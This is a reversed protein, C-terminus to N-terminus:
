TFRSHSHCSRPYPTTYHVDDQRVGASGVHAPQACWRPPSSWRARKALEQGRVDAYDDDYHSLMNFLERLRSPTPISTSIGPPVPVAEALSSVPIVELEEAVAVESADDAGVIGRLGCSRVAAIAM